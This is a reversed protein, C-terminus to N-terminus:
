SIPTPPYSTVSDGFVNAYSNKLFQVYNQMSRNTSHSQELRDKIDYLRSNFKRESEEKERRVKAIEARAQSLQSELDTIRAQYTREKQGQKDRVNESQRRLDTLANELQRTLGANERVKEELRLNTQHLAEDRKAINTSMDRNHDESDRLKRELADVKTGLLKNEDQSDHWKNRMQDMQETVHEVKATLESILKTSEGNKKEYINMREQSEYLRLESSKLMEPLPELEQLRQHLRVKVQSKYEEVLNEYQKLNGRLQVLEEDAQRFKAEITAISSKLKENDAKLYAVEQQKERLEVVITDTHSKSSHEVRDMLAEVEGLRTKLASNEALIQSKEKCVKDYRPHIQELQSRLEEHHADKELLQSNLQELADHSKTARQKQVRTAKKLAEKDREAKDKAKALMETLHEIEIKDQARSSEVTRVQVAMRNCDAEKQRLQKQLHARTQEISHQLGSLTAVEERQASIQGRLERIHRDRDELEIHIRENRRDSDALKKLLVDRQEGLRIAAAEYEHQERLIRRLAKNTAEFDAMKEMLLDKHRSLRTSDSSSIRNEERLRRLADRLEGIQKVAAQGDMETEILKKMLRERESGLIETDYRAEDKEDALLEVSKRLLRNERETLTLEDMTKDLERSQEAMVHKSAELMDEREELEKYTHQLEVENKLTGVETMLSDIKKEYGRMQGHVQEEEDTSLDEVRTPHNIELRHTPGQWTVKQRSSSKAPAPVWPGSQASKVRAKASCTKKTRGSSSRALNTNSTKAAAKKTKTKQKVHVHIPVDDEVHVHVPSTARLGREM